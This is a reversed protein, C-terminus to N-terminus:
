NMNPSNGDFRDALFIAMKLHLKHFLYHLINLLNLGGKKDM